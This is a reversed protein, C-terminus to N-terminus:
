ELTHLLAQVSFCNYVIVGTGHKTQMASLLVAHDTHSM